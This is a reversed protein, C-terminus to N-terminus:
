RHWLPASCSFIIYLSLRFFVETWGSLSFPNPTLDKESFFVSFYLNISLKNILLRLLTSLWSAM